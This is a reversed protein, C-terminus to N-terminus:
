ITLAFYNSHISALPIQKLNFFEMANPKTEKRRLMLPSKFKMPHNKKTPQTKILTGKISGIRPTAEPVGMKKTALRREQSVTQDEPGMQAVLIKERGM